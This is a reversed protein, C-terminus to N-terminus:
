KEGNLQRSIQTIKTDLKKIQEAGANVFSQSLEDSILAEKLSSRLAKLSKLRKVKWDLLVAYTTPSELFETVDHNPM